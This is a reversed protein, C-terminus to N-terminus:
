DLWVIGWAAAAIAVVVACWFVTWGLWTKWARSFKHSWRARWASFATPPMTVSNGKGVADAFAVRLNSRRKARQMLQWRPTTEYLAEERNFIELYSQKESYEVEKAM